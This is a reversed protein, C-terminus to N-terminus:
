PRVGALYDAYESGLFGYVEGNWFVQYLLRRSDRLAESEADVEDLTDRVMWNQNIHGAVQSLFVIWEGNLHYLGTIDFGEEWASRIEDRPMWETDRLHRQARYQPVGSVAAVWGDGDRGLATVYEGGQAAENLAVAPFEASNILRQGNFQANSMVVLWQTGNHALATIFQGRGMAANVAQQPFQTDLIWSQRTYRSRNTMVVFWGRESASAATIFYGEERHQAVWAEPFEESETYVQGPLEGSVTPELYFIDDSALQAMLDPNDIFGSTNLVCRQHRGGCFHPEGGSGRRWGTFHHGADVIVGMSEDFAVNEIAIECRGEEPCQFDDDLSVVQAGPPTLVVLRCAAMSLSLLGVAAIAALRHLLRNNVCYLM